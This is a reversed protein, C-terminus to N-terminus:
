WLQPGVQGLGCKYFVVGFLLLIKFNELRESLSWLRPWSILKMLINLDQTHERIVILLGIVIFYTPFGLYESLMDSLLGHILSSSM